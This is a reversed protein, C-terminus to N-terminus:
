LFGPEALGLTGGPPPPSHAWSLAMQGLGKPWGKGLSPVGLRCPTHLWPRASCPPGDKKPVAAMTALKKDPSGLRGMGPLGTGANRHTLGCFDLRKSTMPLSFPPFHVFTSIHLEALLIREVVDVPLNGCNDVDPDTCHRYPTVSHLMPLPTPISCQHLTVAYLSPIGQECRFTSKGRCVWRETGDASTLSPSSCLCVLLISPVLPTHISDMSSYSASSISSLSDSKPPGLVFHPRIGARGHTHGRRATAGLEAKNTGEGNWTRTHCVPASTNMRHKTPYLGPAIRKTGFVCVARSQFSTKPRTDTVSFTSKIGNVRPANSRDRIGDAPRSSRMAPFSTLCLLPSQSLDGPRRLRLVSWFSASRWRSCSFSFSFHCSSSRSSCSTRIARIQASPCRPRLRRRPPCHSQWEARVWLGESKRGGGGM